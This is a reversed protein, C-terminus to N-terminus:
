AGLGIGSERPRRPDYEPSREVDARAIRLHVSREPWSVREVHDTSVLVHRGPWWDRTDIVLQRIAWSDDEFLFNEVHGIKDDTAAVRYGAVERGSRLHIEDPETPAPPREGERASLTPRMGALPLAGFGWLGTAYSGAWYPPYGYYRNYETEMRRSIPQDTEIPPSNEVQSRTLQTEVTEANSDIRTVAHPSILV